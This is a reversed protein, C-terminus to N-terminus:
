VSCTWDVAVLFWWAQEAAPLTVNTASMCLYLGYVCICYVYGRICVCTSMSSSQKNIHGCGIKPRRDCLALRVWSVDKNIYIKAPPLLRLSASTEPNSGHQGSALSCWAPPGRWAARCLWLWQSQSLWGHRWPQRSWKGATWISCTLVEVKLWIETYDM